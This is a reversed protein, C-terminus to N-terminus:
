NDLNFVVLWKKTLEPVFGGDCLSGSPSLLASRTGGLRVFSRWVRQALGSLWEVWHREFIM